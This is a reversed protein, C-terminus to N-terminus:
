KRPTLYTQEGLPWVHQEMHQSMGNSPIRSGRIWLHTARVIAISMRSKMFNTTESYSKDQNEQRPKRCPKTTSSYRPQMELCEMLYFYLPLSTIANTGPKSMNRRSEASMPFFSQKLNGCFTPDHMLIRLVCTWFVILKVNKWLNRILLDGREETPTSM